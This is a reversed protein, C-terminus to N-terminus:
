EFLAHSRLEDLWLSDQPMKQPFFDNQKEQYVLVSFYISMGDKLTDEGGVAHVQM